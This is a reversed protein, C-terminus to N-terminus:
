PHMHRAVGDLVMGFAVIIAFAGPIGFLLTIFLEFKTM